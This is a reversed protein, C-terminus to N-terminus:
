PVSNSTLATLPALLVSCPKLIDRYYSIMGIFRQLTHRNKSKANKEKCISCDQISRGQQLQQQTQNKRNNGNKSNKKVKRSGKKLTRCQESSNTPNEGYLM